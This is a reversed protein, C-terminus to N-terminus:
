KINRLFLIKNLLNSPWQYIKNISLIFNILSEREKIKVVRYIEMQELDILIKILLLTKSFM